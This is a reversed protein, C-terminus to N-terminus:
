NDIGDIVRSLETQCDPCYGHKMKDSPEGCGKCAIALLVARAANKSSRVDDPFVWGINTYVSGCRQERMARLARRQVKSLVQATTTEVM